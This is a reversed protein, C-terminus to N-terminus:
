KEDEDLLKTFENEKPDIIVEQMEMSIEYRGKEAGRTDISLRTVKGKLTIVVDEGVELMDAQDESIDLYVSPMYQEKAESIGEPKIEHKMPADQKAM